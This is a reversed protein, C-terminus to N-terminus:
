GVPTTTPKDTGECGWQFNDLLVFSDLISDSLDFVALVLTISEGPTVPATSTLWKTAAHTRMCTGQLEPLDGMDDRFDLFSANLSIPNGYEDFSINGTWRESELWGVYMDNFESFYYFPYETSFFALDYSLSASGAPVETVIRVEAYDNASLGQDYQEQISSSCDGTGVLGPDAVCDGTVDVPRLPMPLMAGPDYIDGMDDNCHTPAAAADTAPTEQDLDAVAGSGIVAVKAGERPNWTATPGLGSRVGHSADHGGVSGDIELEGACDLGIAQLVDDTDGDCPTHPPVECEQECGAEACPPGDDTDFGVDLKIGGTEGGDDDEDAGSSEAEAAGEGVGSAGTDIPEDGDRTHAVCGALLMAAGLTFRTRQM